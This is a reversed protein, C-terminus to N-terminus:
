LMDLRVASYELRARMELSPPARNEIGPPADPRAAPADDVPKSAPTSCRNQYRAAGRNALADAQLRMSVPAANLADHFMAAGDRENGSDSEDLVRFAGEIVEDQINGKHRIRLDEAGRRRCVFGPMGALLWYSSASALRTENVRLPAPRLGCSHTQGPSTVSYRIRRRM